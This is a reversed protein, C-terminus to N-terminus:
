FIGCGYNSKRKKETIGEKNTAEILENAKDRWTPPAQSYNESSALYNQLIRKRDSLSLLNGQTDQMSPFSEDLSVQVEEVQLVPLSKNVIVKTAKSKKIPKVKSYGAQLEFVNKHDLTDVQDLELQSDVYAAMAPSNVSTSVVLAEDINRIDAVTTKMLPLSMIFAMCLSSKVASLIM